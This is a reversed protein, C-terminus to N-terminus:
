SSLANVDELSELKLWEKVDSKPILVSPLISLNALIYKENENINSLDFVKKLHEFLKKSGKESHWTIGVEEKIGELNFGQVILREYLEELRLGANKATKALLEITLTHLGALEVICTLCADEGAVKYHEYFLAKCAELSLFELNYELFFGMSMRSSAVVKFPFQAIDQLNEDAADEINDIVLLSNPDLNTLYRKIKGYREDMSEDAGFIIDEIMFQNVFSEKISSIYDIWGVHRFSGINDRLFAKCVETKGIGGLGNVLLVM